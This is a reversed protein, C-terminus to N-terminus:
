TTFKGPNLASGPNLAGKWPSLCLASIGPVVTGVYFNNLKCSHSYTVLKLINQRNSEPPTYRTPDPSLPAEKAKRVRPSDWKMIMVRAERCYLTGWDPQFGVPHVGGGVWLTVQWWCTQGSGRSHIKEWTLVISKDYPHCSQSFIPFLLHIFCYVLSLLNQNSTVLGARMLTNMNVHGVFSRLEWRVVHSSTRHLKCSELCFLSITWFNCFILQM